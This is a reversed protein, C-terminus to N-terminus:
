AKSGAEKMKQVVNKQWLKRSELWIDRYALAIFLFPIAVFVLRVMLGALLDVAVFLNINKFDVLAQNPIVQFDTPVSLPVQFAGRNEGTEPVAFSETDKEDNAVAVKEGVPEKAKALFAVMPTGFMKVTITSEEGDVKGRAVAVGIQMFNPNLINKRHTESKMWAEHQREVSSFNIALNEGAYKYDYGAKEMWFWPTKGNPSTHAFYDRAIMDKVKEAAARDLISNEMLQSLGEKQRAANVLNIVGEKNITAAQVPLGFTM